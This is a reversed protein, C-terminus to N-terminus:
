GACNTDFFDAVLKMLEGDLEFFIKRDTHKAYLERRQKSTCGKKYETALLTDLELKHAIARDSDVSNHGKQKETVLTINDNKLVNALVSNKLSITKDDTSHLILFKTGNAAGRAVGKAATYGAAKGYKLKEYLKIYASLIHVWGGFMASGQEILMDSTRNFGSQVFVGKINYLDYCSVASVAYGGWSHGYLFLPLNNEVSIFRLACNLDEASQPLGRLSKGGSTHTGSNDFTFVRYGRKAFYDVQPLFCLQGSFIGHSIVVLGKFKSFRKNEYFFGNYSYGRRGGFSVPTQELEPYDKLDPLIPSDYIEYRKGFVSEYLLATVAFCLLSLFIVTGLIIGLLLLLQIVVDM